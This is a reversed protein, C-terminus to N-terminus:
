YVNQNRSRLVHTPFELADIINSEKAEGDQMDTQPSEPIQYLHTLKSTTQAVPSPSPMETFPNTPYQPLHLPGGTSYHHNSDKMGPNGPM